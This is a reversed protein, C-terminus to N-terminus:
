GDIEIVCECTVSCRVKLRTAMVRDCFAVMGNWSRVELTFPFFAFGIRILWIVTNMPGLLSLAARQEAIVSHWAGSEMMGFGESFAIEGLSDHAFWQMVDNILVAHSNAKDILNILVDIQRRM